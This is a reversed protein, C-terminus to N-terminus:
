RKEGSVVNGPMRERDLKALGAPSFCGFQLERVDRHGFFIEGSDPYPPSFYARVALRDDSIMVKEAATKGIWVQPRRALLPFATGSLRIRLFLRPVGYVDLLAERAEWQLKEHRIPFKILDYYMAEEKGKKKM